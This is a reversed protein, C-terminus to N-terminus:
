FARFLLSSNIVGKEELIEAVETLGAAQPIEVTIARDAKGFGFADQAVFIILMSLLASLGVIIIGQMIKMFSSKRRKARIEDATEDTLTYEPIEDLKTGLDLKFEKVRRDAIGDDEAAPEAADASKALDEESFDDFVDTNETEPLRKEEDAM